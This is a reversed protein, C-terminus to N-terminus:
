EDTSIKDSIQKSMNALRAWGLLVVGKQSDVYNKKYILFCKDVISHDMIGLLSFAGAAENSFSKVETGDVKHSLNVMSYSSYFIEVLSQLVINDFLNFHKQAELIFRMTHSFHSNDEIHKSGIYNKYISGSWNKWGDYTKGYAYNQIIKGSSNKTISLSIKSAIKEFINKYLENGTALYLYLFFTGNASLINHPVPLNSMWFYKNDEVLFYGTTLEDKWLYLYSEACEEAFQSYLKAKDKYKGLNYKDVLVFFRVFPTCIISNHFSKLQTKFTKFRRSIVRAPINIGLSRVMILSSPSLNTNIKEEVNQMTLESYVRKAGIKDNWVEISFSKDDLNNDISFSTRNNNGYRVAQLKLSPLQIDDLITIPKGFTFQGGTLWGVGVNGLHDKISAKDDRKNYVANAHEIFIALYSTDKTAEYMELLSELIYAEGWM